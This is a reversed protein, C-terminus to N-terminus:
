DHDETPYVCTVKYGSKLTFKGHAHAVLQSGERVVNIPTDIGDIVAYIAPLYRYDIESGYDFWTRLGDSYVRKPAISKDGAMSFNFNLRKVDFPTPELYDQSAVLPMEGVSVPREALIDVRLHPIKATNYPESRVYFTYVNASQGFVTISSDVGIIQGPQISLTNSTPQTTYFSPKDGVIVKIIQEWEPFVITTIAYERTLVRVVERPHYRVQLTGAHRAAKKWAPQTARLRVPNAIKEIIPQQILPVSGQEMFHEPMLPTNALCPNSLFTLTLLSCKIIKM